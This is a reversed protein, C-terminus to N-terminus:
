EAENHKVRKRENVDKSIVLKCVLLNLLERKAKTLRTKTM